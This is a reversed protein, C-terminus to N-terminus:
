YNLSTIYILAAYASYIRQLSSLIVEIHRFYTSLVYLSDHVEVNICNIFDCHILSEYRINHLNETKLENNYLTIDPIIVMSIIMLLVKRGTLWCRLMKNDTKKSAM